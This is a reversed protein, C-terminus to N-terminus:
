SHPHTSKQRDLVWNFAFRTFELLLLGEPCPFLCV